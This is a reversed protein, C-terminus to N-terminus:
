RSVHAALTRSCILVMDLIVLGVWKSGKEKNNVEVKTSGDAEVLVIVGSLLSNEIFPMLLMNILAM